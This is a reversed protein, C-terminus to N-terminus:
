PREAPRDRRPGRASLRGLRDPLPALQDRRARQGGDEPRAGEPCADTALIMRGQREPSWHAGEQTNAAFRTTPTPSTSRRRQPHPLRHRPPAAARRRRPGSLRRVPGERGPRLNDDTGRRPGSVKGSVTMFWPPSNSFAEFIPARVARRSPTWGGASTPTPRIWDWMAAQEPRWWDAGAAGPPQRWFGPAAAGPRLYPMVDPRDGGGINGLARDDM